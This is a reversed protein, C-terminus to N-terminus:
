TSDCICLQSVCHAACPLYEFFTKDYAEAGKGTEGKFNGTQRLSAM